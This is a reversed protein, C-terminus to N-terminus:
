PAGVAALWAESILFTSVSVYTLWHEEARTVDPELDV